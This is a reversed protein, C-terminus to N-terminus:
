INMKNWQLNCQTERCFRLFICLFQFHQNQKYMCQLSTQNLTHIKRLYFKFIVILITKTIINDISRGWPVNPVYFLRTNSLNLHTKFVINCIDNMLVHKTWVINEASEVLTQVSSLSKYVHAKLCSLVSDWNWHAIDDTLDQKIYIFLIRFRKLSNM